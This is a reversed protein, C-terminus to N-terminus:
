HSSGGDDPGITRAVVRDAVPGSEDPLATKRSRNLTGSYQLRRLADAYDIATAVHAPPAGCVSCACVSLDFQEHAPRLRNNHVHMWPDPMTSTVALFCRATACARMAYMGSGNAMISNAIAARNASGAAAAGYQRTVGGGIAGGVLLLGFVVSSAFRTDSFLSTAM